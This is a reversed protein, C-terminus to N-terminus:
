WSHIRRRERGRKRRYQVPRRRTATGCLVFPRPYVRQLDVSACLLDDIMVPASERTYACEDAGQKVRVRHEAHPLYPLKVRHYYPTQFRVVVRSLYCGLLYTLCGPPVPGLGGSGGRSM